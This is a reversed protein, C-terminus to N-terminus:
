EEYHQKWGNNSYINKSSNQCPVVSEKNIMVNGEHSEKQSRLFDQVQSPVLLASDLLQTVRVHNYQYMMSHAQESRETRVRAFSVWHHYVLVKLM